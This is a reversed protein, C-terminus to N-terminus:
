YRLWDRACFIPVSKSELFNIQKWKKQQNNLYVYAAKHFAVKEYVKQIDTIPRNQQFLRNDL